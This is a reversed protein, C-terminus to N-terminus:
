EATRVPLKQGDVKRSAQEAYRIQVIKQIVAQMKAEAPRETHLIMRLPLSIPIEEIDRGAKHACRM